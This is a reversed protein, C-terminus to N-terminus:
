ITQKPILLASVRSKVVLSNTHPFTHKAMDKMLFCIITFKFLNKGDYKKSMMFGVEEINIDSVMDQVTLLCYKSLSLIDWLAHQMHFSPSSSSTLMASSNCSKGLGM